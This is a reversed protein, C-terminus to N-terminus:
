EVRLAEAPSLKSGKLAPFIGFVIGVVLSFLCSIALSNGVISASVKHNTMWPLLYSVLVGLFIGIVGGLTCIVCAEIVFQYLIDKQSAGLAKRIGIERTREAVSTLMVNMIGVGGVLLSISAIAGLFTTFLATQKEIQALIEKPDQISYDDMSKSNKEIASQIQQLANGSYNKDVYLSIEDIRIDSELRLATTYPVLFDNPDMSEEDEMLAEGMAQNSFPEVIGVVNLAAQGCSVTQGVPSASEFLIRALKKSILCVRSRQIIDFDNINRGSLLTIRHTKLYSPNIMSISRKLHKKSTRVEFTKYMKPLVSKIFPLGKFMELDDTKLEIQRNTKENYKANVVYIFSDETGISQLVEEKAGNTIAVVIIVAAIGIIIGLMSLFARVKNSKLNVFSISFSESINM